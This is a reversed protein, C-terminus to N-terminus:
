PTYTIRRTFLLGTGLLLCIARGRFQDSGRDGQDGAQDGRGAHREDTEGQVIAELGIEGHAPQLGRCRAIDHDHRHQHDDDRRDLAEDHPLGSQRRALEPRRVFGRLGESWNRIKLFKEGQRRPVILAIAIRDRGVSPRQAITVSAPRSATSAPPARQRVTGVAYPSTTDNQRGLAPTLDAILLAPSPTLCAQDGPSRSTLRLVM